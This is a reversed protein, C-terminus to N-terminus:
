TLNVLSNSCRLSPVHEFQLSPDQKERIENLALFLNMNDKEELYYSQMHPKSDPDMPNYRFIEFHLTRSM